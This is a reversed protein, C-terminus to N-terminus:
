KRGKIAKKPVPLVNAKIKASSGAPWDYLPKNMKALVNHAGIIESDVKHGGVFVGGAPVTVFYGTWWIGQKRM